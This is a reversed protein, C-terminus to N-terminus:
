TESFDFQETKIKQGFFMSQHDFSGQPGGKKAAAMAKMEKLRGRVAERKERAAQLRASTRPTHPQQKVVAPAKRKKRAAAAAAPAPSTSSSSSSPLPTPDTTPEWNNSKLTDLSSFQSLVLEIQICVM